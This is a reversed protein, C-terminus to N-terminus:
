SNNQKRMRTHRQEEKDRWDLYAADLIKILIVFANVMGGDLGARDGYQVMKSWPITGFSM